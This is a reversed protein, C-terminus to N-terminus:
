LLVLGNLVEPRLTVCISLTLSQVKSVTICLGQGCPGSVSTGHAVRLWGGGAATFCQISLSLVLAQGVVSSARCRGWPTSICGLYGLKSVSKCRVFPCGGFTRMEVLCFYQHAGFLYQEM